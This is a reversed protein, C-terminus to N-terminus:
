KVVLTAKSFYEKFNGNHELPERKDWRIIYITYRGPKIWESKPMGETTAWMTSKQDDIPDSQFEDVFGNDKGDAGQTHIIIGLFSVGFTKGNNKIMINFNKGATWEFVKEKENWKEGVAKWDDDVSECISFKATKKEETQATGQSGAAGILAFLAFLTTITRVSM